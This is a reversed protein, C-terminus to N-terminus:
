LGLLVRGHSLHGATDFNMRFSGASFSGICAGLPFCSCYASVITNSASISMEGGNRMQFIVLCDLILSMKVVFSPLFSGIYSKNYLYRPYRVMFLNVKYVDFMILLIPTCGMPVFLGLLALVLMVQLKSTAVQLIKDIINM